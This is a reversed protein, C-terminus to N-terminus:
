EDKLNKLEENVERVTKKWYLYNFLWIMVYIVTMILVVIGLWILGGAFWGLALSIIVFLSMTIFYHILTARLVGLKEIEYVITGGNAVAGYLASAVLHFILWIDSRDEGMMLLGIIIGGVAGILSKILLRKRIQM